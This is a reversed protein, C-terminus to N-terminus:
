RSIPTNGIHSFPLSLPGFRTGADISGSVQYAIQNGRLLNMLGLGVARPSISIPIDLTTAQGAALNVPNELRTGGVDLGGLAFSVGLRTLDLAFQNTNKVQLKVSATTKDLGLKGIALSSMEVQPVAPVPLEGSKSLPLNLLGLVPAEVGLTLDAQYPLISGPRVNKLTKVLSAFTIRAPLRVVSAGRAPVSGSPKINGQLLTSGSSAVSYALDLLPLEVAYPNAVEVTFVLDINQLSFNGLETAIIRATPKPAADLIGELSQCGGLLAACILAPVALYHNFQSRMTSNALYRTGM